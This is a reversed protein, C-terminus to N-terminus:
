VKFPQLPPESPLLTQQVQLPCLNWEAAEGLIRLALEQSRVSQHRHVRMWATLFMHIFYFTLIISQFGPITYVRVIGPFPLITPDLGAQDVDHSGTLFLSVFLCRYKLWSTGTNLSSCSKRKPPIVSDLPRTILSQRGSGNEEEM